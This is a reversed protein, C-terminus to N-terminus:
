AIEKLKNKKLETKNLTRVYLIEREEIQYMYGASVLEDIVSGVFDLTINDCQYVSRCGIRPKMIKKGIGDCIDYRTKYMYHRKTKGNQFILKKAEDKRTELYSLYENDSVDIVTEYVDVWRLTFYKNDALAEAIQKVDNKLVNGSFDQPHCYLEAKGKSVEICYGGNDFKDIHWGISQFVKTKEEDFAKGAEDSNFYGYQYEWNKPEIRFHVNVYENSEYNGDPNWNDLLMHDVGYQPEITNDHYKIKM